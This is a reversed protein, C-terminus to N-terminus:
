GCQGFNFICIPRYHNDHIDYRDHSDAQKAPPNSRQSTAPSDHTDYSEHSDAQKTPPNSGQSTAPSNGCGSM